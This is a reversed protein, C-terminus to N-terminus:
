TKDLKLLPTQYLRVEKKERLACFCVTFYLVTCVSTCLARNVIVDWALRTFLGSSWEECDTKAWHWMMFHEVRLSLNQMEWIIGNHNMLVEPEKSWWCHSSGTNCIQMTHKHVSTHGGRHNFVTHAHSDLSTIWKWPPTNKWCDNHRGTSCTSYGQQGWHCSSIAKVAADATDARSHTKEELSHTTRQQEYSSWVLTWVWHGCETDVSLMIELRRTRCPCTVAWRDAAVEKM